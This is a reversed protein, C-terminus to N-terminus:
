TCPAAVPNFVTGLITVITLIETTVSLTCGSTLVACMTPIADDLGSRTFLAIVALVQAPVAFASWPALESWTTAVLDNLRSTAFLAVVSVALVAIFAAIRTFRLGPNNLLTRQFYLVGRLHSCPM